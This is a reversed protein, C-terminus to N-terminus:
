NVETMWLYGIFTIKVKTPRNDSWCINLYSRNASTLGVSPYPSLGFRADVGAGRRGSRLDMKERGVMSAGVVMSAHRRVPARVADARAVVQSGDEGAEVQHGTQRQRQMRSGSCRRDGHRRDSRGRGEKEKRRCLTGAEENAWYATVEMLAAPRRGGHCMCTAPQRGAGARVWSM